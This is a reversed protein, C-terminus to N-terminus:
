PKAWAAPGKVKAQQKTATTKIGRSFNTSTRERRPHLKSTMKNCNLIIRPASTTLKTALFTANWVSARDVPVKSSCRDIETSKEACSPLGQPGPMSKKLHQTSYPVANQYHKTLKPAVRKDTEHKNGPWTNLCNWPTCQSTQPKLLLCKTHSANCFVVKWM